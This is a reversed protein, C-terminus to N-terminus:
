SDLFRVAQELIHLLERKQNETLNLNKPIQPELPQTPNIQIKIRSRRGRGSQIHISKSDPEADVRIKVKKGGVKTEIPQGFTKSTVKAFFQLLINLMPM